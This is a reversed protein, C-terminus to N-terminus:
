PHYMFFKAGNIVLACITFSDPLKQASAPLSPPSVMTDCHICVSLPSEALTISDSLKQDSYMEVEHLTIDQWAIRLSHRVHISRLKKTKKTELQSRAESKDLEDLEDLSRGLM